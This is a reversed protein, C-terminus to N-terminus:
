PMNQPHPSSPLLPFSSVPLHTSLLLAHIGFILGPQIVNEVFTSAEAAHVVADLDREHGPKKKKKIKKIKKIKQNKSLPALSMATVMRMTWDDMPTAHVGGDRYADLSALIAFESLFPYLVYVNGLYVQSLPILTSRPPM